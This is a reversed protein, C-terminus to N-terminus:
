ITNWQQIVKHLQEDPLDDPHIHPRVDEFSPPNPLDMNNVVYLVSEKLELLPPLPLVAPEAVEPATAFAHQLNLDVYHFPNMCSPTNCLQKRYPVGLFLCLRKPLNTTKKDVAIHPLGGIHAGTFVHCDAFATSEQLEAVLQYFKLAEPSAGTIKNPWSIPRAM